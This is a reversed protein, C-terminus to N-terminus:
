RSLLILIAVTNCVIGIGGVTPLAVEYLWFWLTTFYEYAGHRVCFIVLLFACVHVFTCGVHTVCRDLCKLYHVGEQLSKQLQTAKEYAVAVANTLKRRDKEKKNWLIAIIFKM